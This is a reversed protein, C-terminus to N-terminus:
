LQDVVSQWFSTHGQLWGETFTFLEYHHNGNCQKLLATILHEDSEMEFRAKTSNLFENLKGISPLIYTKKFTTELWLLYDSHQTEIHQPQPYEPPEIAVDKLAAVLELFYESFDAHAMNKLATYSARYEAHYRGAQFGEQRMIAPTKQTNRAHTLDIQKEARLRNLAKKSVLDPDNKAKVLDEAQQVLQTVFESVKPSLPKIEAKIKSDHLRNYLEEPISVTMRAM